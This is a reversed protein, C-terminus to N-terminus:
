IVSRGCFSSLNPSITIILVRRPYLVGLCLTCAALREALSEYDRRSPTTSYKRENTRPNTLETVRHSIVDIYNYSSRPRALVRYVQM